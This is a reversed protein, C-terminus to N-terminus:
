KTVVRYIASLIMTAMGGGVLLLGVPPLIVAMGGGFIMVIAGLAILNLPRRKTGNNHTPSVQVSSTQDRLLDAAMQRLEEREEPQATEILERMERVLRELNLDLAHKEANQSTHM